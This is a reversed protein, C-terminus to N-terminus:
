FQALYAERAPKWDTYIKVLPRWGKRAHRQGDATAQEIAWEPIPSRTQRPRTRRMALRFFKENEERGKKTKPDTSGLSIKPLKMKRNPLINRRESAVSSFYPIM